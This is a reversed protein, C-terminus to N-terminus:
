GPRGEHARLRPRLGQAGLHAPARHRGPAADAPRAPDRPPLAALRRGRRAPRGTSTRPINQLGALLLLTIFPIAKWIDAVLIMNLALFPDGLWVVKQDSGASSCSSRTSSGTTPTTSGSGSCPTPSRPSRGPSWCSSGSSATGAPLSPQAPARAAPEPRHCAMVEVFTFYLSNRLAIASRRTPLAHAPLQGARGVASIAGAPSRHADQFALLLSASSPTPSCRRAARPAGAGGALPRHPAPAGRYRLTPTLRLRGPGRRSTVSIPERRPAQRDRRSSSRPTRSRTPPRM